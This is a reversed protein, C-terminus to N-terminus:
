DGLLNQKYGRGTHVFELAEYFPYADSTAVDSLLHLKYAGAGRAIELAHRVLKSGVGRGRYKRDVVVNELEAMAAGRHRLTPQVILTVTGVVQGDLVAVLLHQGSKVMGDWAADVWPEDASSDRDAGSELAGYLGLIAPVEDRAASRIEVPDITSM